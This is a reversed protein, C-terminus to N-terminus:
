ANHFKLLFSLLSIHSSLSHEVSVLGVFLSYSSVSLGHLQL